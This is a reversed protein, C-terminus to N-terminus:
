EKQGTTLVPWLNITLCLVVALGFPGSLGFAVQQLIAAGPLTLPLLVAGVRLVAASNGLWLTAIVLKPSAINKGAFATLMRPAIGCVLLTIFGITLSHRIADIPVVSTGTTLLTFSNILLLVAALAAWLYASVILPVFPGYVARHAAIQAQYAYTMREPTPSLQTLHIPMSGRSRIMPLLVSVCALVAGGIGLWGLGICITSFLTPVAGSLTGMLSFLLGVLYVGAVWAVFRPSITLLGAYMPLAVVSMALAIPVLFGLLGLTVNLTDGPETVLGFSAHSVWLLNVGNVVAALGLSVFAIAIFPLVKTLAPRQALSPGHTFTLV